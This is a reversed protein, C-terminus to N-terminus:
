RSGGRVTPMLKVSACAAPPDAEVREGPGPTSFEKVGSKDGDNVGNSDTSTVFYYYNTKPQLGDIRVRFMTQAHDRNLRVPSKAAENLEKPNTGYHVVAFHDDTGGPNNTTWRIIALDSRAFELAPGQKIMVHAPKPAPPLEQAACNSALLCATSAIVTLKFLRNM